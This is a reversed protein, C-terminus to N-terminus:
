DHLLVTDITTSVMSFRTERGHLFSLFLAFSINLYTYRLLKVACKDDMQACIANFDNANIQFKICMEDNKHLYKDIRFTKQSLFM